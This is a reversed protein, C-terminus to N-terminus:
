RRQGREGGGDWERGMKGCLGERYRGCGGLLVGGGVGMREHDLLKKASWVSHSSTYASCSVGPKSGRLHEAHSLRPSVFNPCASTADLNGAVEKARQDGSAPHGHDFGLGACRAHPDVVTAIPVLSDHFDNTATALFPPPQSPPHPIHVDAAARSSGASDGSIQDVPIAEVWLGDDSRECGVVEAGVKGEAGGRVIGDEGKSGYIEHKRRGLVVDRVGHVINNRVRHLLGSLSLPIDGHDGMPLNEREEM